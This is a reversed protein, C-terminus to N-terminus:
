WLIMGPFVHGAVIDWKWWLAYDRHELLILCVPIYGYFRGFAVVWYVPLSWIWGLIGGTCYSLAYRYMGIFYVRLILVGNSSSQLAESSCLFYQYRYISVLGALWQYKADLGQWTIGVTRRIGDSHFIIDFVIHGCPAGCILLSGTGDFNEPVFQRCSVMRKRGLRLM